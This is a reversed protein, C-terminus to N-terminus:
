CCPFYREVQKAVYDSFDFGLCAACSATVSTAGAACLFLPFAAIAAIAM